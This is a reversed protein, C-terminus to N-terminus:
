ETSNLVLTRARDTRLVSLGERLSAYAEPPIDRVRVSVTRRFRVRDGETSVSQRIEGVGKLERDIQSPLSTVSSDKPLNIVLDLTM